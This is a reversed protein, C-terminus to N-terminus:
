FIWECSFAGKGDNVPSHNAWQFNTYSAELTLAFVKSEGFTFMFDLNAGYTQGQAKLAYDAAPSSGDDSLDHHITGSMELVSYFPGGYVLLWNRPHFGAILAFDQISTTERANWNFGGPGFAGKQSGGAASNQNGYGVTLALAIDGEKAERAPRGLLQLKGSVMAASALVGYRLGVEFSDGLGLGARVPVDFGSEVSPSGFLPPRSSADDSVAVM